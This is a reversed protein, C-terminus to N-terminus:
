LQASEKLSQQLSKQPYWQLIRRAKSSDVVLSGLLQKAQPRRGALIFAARLVEEPCPWLRSSRGWHSAMCSIVESISLTVPEAAVFTQDEALPNMAMRELLDCLNEIVVFSRRNRVSSLPLPLGTHVLRALRHINGPADRGCVLAPRVIVLHTQSSELEKLLLTEAHCKSESYLNSPNFPSNESFADNNVTCSGHVGISSVFVFRPVGCQAAVSALNVPYHVNVDWLHEVFHRSHSPAHHALGGLHILASPRIKLCLNKWNQQAKSDFQRAQLPFVSHGSNRLYVALRRGIFGNAGTLIFRM